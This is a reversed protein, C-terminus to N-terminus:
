KKKPSPAKNPDDAFDPIRFEIAKAQGDYEAELSKCLAAAAEDKALNKLEYPTM